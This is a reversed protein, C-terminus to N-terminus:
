DRRIRAILHRLGGPVLLISLAFGAVFGGIDAMWFYDTGGFLGLVFRIGLLVGIMRFAGLQPAQAQGLRLWLLYTFAGILAFDGPFAGVLPLTDDRTIGFVAAGVVTGSFFLILMATSGMAEAVMKGMALLIVVGFLAHGMSWHLFPYALLRVLHEPPFQGTAWMWDWIRASFAFQQVYAARWGIAEPGGILGRAGLNFLLEIGFIVLALAVVVPPLPNVPSENHPHTM